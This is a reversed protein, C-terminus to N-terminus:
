KKKGKKTGKRAKTSAGGKIAASTAAYAESEDDSDDAFGREKPPLSSGSPHSMGGSPNSMGSYPQQAHQTLFPNPAPLAPFASSSSPNMHPAFPNLSSVPNSSPPASYGGAPLAGGMYSSGSLFPNQSQPKPQLMQLQQQQLMQQQQMQLQQQQQQQQQFLQMQQMQHQNEPQLQQQQQQSFGSSPPQSFGGM